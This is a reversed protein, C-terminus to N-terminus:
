SWGVRPFRALIHWTLSASRVEVRGEHKVKTNEIMLLEDFDNSNLDRINGTDRKLRWDARV